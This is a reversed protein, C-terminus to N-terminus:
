VRELLPRTEDTLEHHSYRCMEGDDCSGDRHFQVCPWTEHHYSCHQSKACHGARYYRCLYPKKDRQPGTHNFPCDSGQM